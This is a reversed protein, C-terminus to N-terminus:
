EGRHWWKYEIKKWKGNGGGWKYEQWELKPIFKIKAKLKKKDM